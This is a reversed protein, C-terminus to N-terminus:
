EGKKSKYRLFSHFAVGGLAGLLMLIGVIDLFLSRDRGPVWGAQINELRGDRSHCDECALAAKKSGVMHNIPLVMETDVWDTKGSFELGAAKMGASAAKQWDHDSFYAGSGAGGFLKPIVLFKTETDYLQKARMVKVPWIKGDTEADTVPNLLVPGNSPDIKDGALVHSVRGGLLRYEPAIDKGLTFQGKDASFLIDGDADKIKSTDEPKQGAKSWDWSLRTKRPKAYHDIHCAQCSVKSYHSDLLRHLFSNEPTERGYLMTQYNFTDYHGDEGVLTSEEIYRKQTHPKSTHCQECSIRDKGGASVSYVRGKIDHNKTVHCDVCAMKRGAPSMHIDINGSNTQILSKDLDGRLVGSGEGHSNFHCQGCNASSPKAVSQAAAQYNTENVSPYGAGNPSKVYKGSQEHCVLCDIKSANTFDFGNDRWGYGIHCSTCAAENSAIGPFFNSILNKKGVSVAQKEKGPYNSAQKSWLWHSTKMVEQGALNHCSLCARTVDEPSNFNRKLETFQSHDVSKASAAVAMALIMLFSAGILKM